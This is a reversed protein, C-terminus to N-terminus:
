RNGPYRGPANGPPMPYYPIAPPQGGGHAARDPAPARRGRTLAEYLSRASEVRGNGPLSASQSPAWRMQISANPPRLETQDRPSRLRETERAPPTEAPAFRWTAHGAPRAPPSAPTKEVASPAPRFLADHPAGQPQDTQRPSLVPGFGPAADRPPSAPPTLRESRSPEALASDAPRRPTVEHNVGPPLPRRPATAPGSGNHDQDAPRQRSPQLPEPRNEAASSHTPSPSPRQIAAEPYDDPSTDPVSGIAPKAVTPSNPETPSTAFVPSFGDKRPPHHGSTSKVESTKGRPASAAREARPLKDILGFPGPPPPFDEAYIPSAGLLLLTLAPLALSPKM